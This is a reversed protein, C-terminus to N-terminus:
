YSSSCGKCPIGVRVGRVLERGCRSGRMRCKLRCRQSRSSCVGWLRRQQRGVVLVRSVLRCLLKHEGARCGSPRKRKQYTSGAETRREREMKSHARFSPMPSSYKPGLFPPLPWHFPLFLSSHFHISAHCLHSPTEAQRARSALPAPLTSYARAYTIIQTHKRVDETEGESEDRKGGQMASGQGSCKMNDEANAPGTWQEAIDTYM